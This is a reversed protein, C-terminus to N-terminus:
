KYDSSVESTLGPVGTVEQIATSPARWVQPAELALFGVREATSSDPAAKREADSSSFVKWSLSTSIALLVAILLLVFSDSTLLHPVPAVSQYGQM